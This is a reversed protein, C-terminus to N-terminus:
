KKEALIKKIEEAIIGKIWESSLAPVQSAGKDSQRSVTKSKV